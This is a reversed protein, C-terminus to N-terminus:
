QSKLKMWWERAHFRAKCYYCRGAMTIKHRALAVQCASLQEQTTKLTSAMAKGSSWASRTENCERCAARLNAPDNAKGGKVSRPVVHELTRFSRANSEQNTMKGGCWFCKWDQRECLALCVQAEYGTPNLALAVKVPKEGRIEALAKQWEATTKSDTIAEKERKSLFVKAKPKMSIRKAKIGIRVHHLHASKRLGGVGRQLFDLSQTHTCPALRNTDSHIAPDATKGAFAWM